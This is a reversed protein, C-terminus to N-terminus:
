DRCALPDGAQSRAASENLREPQRSAEPSGASPSVSECSSSPASRPIAYLAFVGMAIWLVGIAVAVGPLWKRPFFLSVFPMPHHFVARDPPDILWPWRRIGGIIMLSGAIFAFMAFLYAM